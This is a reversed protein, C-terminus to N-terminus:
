KDKKEEEKKVLKKAKVKKNIFIGLFVCGTIAGPVILLPIIYIIAKGTFVFVNGVYEWYESGFSTKIEKNYSVNVISYDLLNDYYAQQKNLSSLESNIEDLEKRIMIIDSTTISPDALLTMYSDRTAELVEIRAEVDSYSSTIDYSNVNKSSIADGNTDIYALLTDLKETPVRYTYYCSDDSDRSNEVYGGLTSVEKGINSKIESYDTSSISYNVVYYVKRTTEIVVGNEISDGGPLAEVDSSSGCSSLAVLSLLGMLVKISKKM